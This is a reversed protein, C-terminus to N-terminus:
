SHDGPRVGQQPLSSCAFAVPLVLRSCMFHACWSDDDQDSGDPAAEFADEDEVAATAKAKVAKAKVAKAAAPKSAKMPVPPLQAALEAFPAREAPTM